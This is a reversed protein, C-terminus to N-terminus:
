TFAEFEGLLFFGGVQVAGGLVVNLAEGSVTVLEIFQSPAIRYSSNASLSVPGDIVTAGGSRMSVTVPGAAMIRCSIVGIMLGATGARVQHAAATNQDFKVRFTRMKRVQNGMRIPVENSLWPGQPEKFLEIM